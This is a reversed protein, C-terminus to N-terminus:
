KRWYVNVYWFLFMLCFGTEGRNKYYVATPLMWFEKDDPKIHKPIYKFEIKM